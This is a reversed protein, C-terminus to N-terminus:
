MYFRFGLSIYYGTFDLSRNKGDNSQTQDGISPAGSFTASGQPNIKSVKFESINLTRHGLEILFTTTDNMVTEFSLSGGLLNGNGKADLSHDSVGPYNVNTYSNTYSASVTGGYGVIFIRTSNTKKLYIELGLKPAYGTISSTLNYTRSSASDTASVLTLDTPKFVEVGFRLGLNETVYIFGFEGSYHASWKKDYSFTTEITEGTFPSQNLSSPGGTMLFYSGFTENNLNFVRGYSFSPLLFLLIGIVGLVNM